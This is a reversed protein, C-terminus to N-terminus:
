NNVMVEVMNNDNVTNVLSNHISSTNYNTALIILVLNLFIVMVEIITNDNRTNVLSMLKPGVKVNERYGYEKQM